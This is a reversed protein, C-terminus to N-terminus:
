IQFTIKSDGRLRMRLEDIAQLDEFYDSLVWFSMALDEGLICSDDCYILGWFLTKSIGRARNVTFEFLTDLTMKGNATPEAFQFRKFQSLVAWIQEENLTVEKDQSEGNQSTTQKTLTDEQQVM